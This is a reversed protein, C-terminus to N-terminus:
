VEELCIADFFDELFCGAFGASFRFVVPSFFVPSFFVLGEAEALLAACVAVLLTAFCRVFFGAFAGCFFAVRRLAAGLM